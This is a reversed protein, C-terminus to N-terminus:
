CVDNASNYLSDMVSLLKNSTAGVKILPMIATSIVESVLFTVPLSIM